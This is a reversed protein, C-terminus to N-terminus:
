ELEEPVIQAANLHRTFWRDAAASDSSYVRSPSFGIHLAVGKRRLISLETLLIRMRDHTKLDLQRTQFPTRPRALPVESPTSAFGSATVQGGRVAIYRWPTEDPGSRLLVTCETLWCLWSGHHKRRVGRKLKRQVSARVEDEEAPPAMPRKGARLLHTVTLGAFDTHGQSRLIDELVKKMEEPPHNLISIDLADLEGKQINLLRELSELPRERGVNSRLAANYPPQADKIRDNELLAAELATATQTVRVDGVQTMLENIRARKTHRQRFYSNVRDRLSTAKGIYLLRGTSSFMEYVGPGTPLELRMERSALYKRPQKRTIKVAPRALWEQLQEWSEIGERERLLRVSNRWIVQTAQVHSQSRITEHLDFGFHGALARITRAPLDPLLRRALKYTCLVPWPLDDQGHLRRLFPVEFAAYHIVVSVVGASAALTKLETWVEQPVSGLALQEADLGTMRWIKSPITEPAPHQFLRTQVGESASLSWGLELIAAKASSLGTTQCDLFLVPTQILDTL